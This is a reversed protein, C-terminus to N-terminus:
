VNVPSPWNILDLLVPLRLRITTAPQAAANSAVATPGACAISLRGGFCGSTWSRWDSPLAQAVPSSVGYTGSGGLSLAM